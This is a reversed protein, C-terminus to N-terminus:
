RSKRRMSFAPFLLLAAGAIALPATGPEPIIALINSRYTAVSVHYNTDGKTSGSLSDRAFTTTSGGAQQDVTTGVGVLYWTGSINQFMASGSDILSLSAENDGVGPPTATSSGAASLLATYTYSDYSITGLELPVNIGWRKAVTDLAGWAVPSTGIATAGRGVGYGVLTANQIYGGSSDLSVASVTPNSQLKFIKLDVGAAVQKSGNGGNFTMDVAFSNVGDFTVRQSSGLTVHNATLMFGNGLYIASGTSSVLSLDTGAVRGVSDWPLGGGPDSRNASNDGNWLILAEAHPPAACIISFLCVALISPKM